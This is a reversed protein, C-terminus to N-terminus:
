EGKTENTSENAEVPTEAKPAEETAVEEKPAEETKAEEAKEETFAAEADAKTEAEKARREEEADCWALKGTKCIEEIDPKTLTEVKLLYEAINTLLDM